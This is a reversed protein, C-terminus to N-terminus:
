FSQIEQWDRKLYQDLENGKAGQDIGERQIKEKRKVDM